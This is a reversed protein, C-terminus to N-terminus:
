NSFAKIYIFEIRNKPLFPVIENAAILLQSAASQDSYISSAM